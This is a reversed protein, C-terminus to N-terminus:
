AQTRVSGAGRGEPVEVPNNAVGPPVRREVAGAAQVSCRTVPAGIAVARHESDARVPAPERRNVREPVVKGASRVGEGLQDHTAGLVKEARCGGTAQRVAAAGERHLGVPAPENDHVVEGAPCRVPRRRMRTKGQVRFAVQVARRVRTARRVEAGNERQRPHEHDGFRACAGARDRAHGRANVAARRAGGLM